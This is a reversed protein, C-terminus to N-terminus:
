AVTVKITLDETAREFPAMARATGYRKEPEKRLCKLCITELDRDIRPNLRRPLEPEQELM